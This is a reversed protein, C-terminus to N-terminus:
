GLLRTIQSPHLLSDKVRGDPIQGDKSVLADLALQAIDKVVDVKVNPRQTQEWIEKVAEELVQKADAVNGGSQDGAFEEGEAPAKRRGELVARERM